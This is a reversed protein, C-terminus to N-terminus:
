CGVDVGVFRRSALFRNRDVDGGIVATDGGAGGVGPGAPHNLHLGGLGATIAGPDSAGSLRSGAGGLYSRSNDQGSGPLPLGTTPDTMLGDVYGGGGALSSLPRGGM